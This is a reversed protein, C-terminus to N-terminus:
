YVDTDIGVIVLDIVGLAFRGLGGTNTGPSMVAHPLLIRIFTWLTTAIMGCYLHGFSVTTDITHPWPRWGQHPCLATLCWPGAMWEDWFHQVVALVVRYTSARQPVVVGYGIHHALSETKPEGAAFHQM